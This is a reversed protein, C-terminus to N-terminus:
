RGRAKHTLACRKARWGGLKSVNVLRHVRICACGNRELLPFGHRGMQNAKRLADGGRPKVGVLHDYSDRRRLQMIPEVLAIKAMAFIRLIRQRVSDNAVNSTANRKARHFRRRIKHDHQASHQRLAHLPVAGRM